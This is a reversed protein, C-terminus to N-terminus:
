KRAIIIIRRALSTPCLYGILRFLLAWKSFPGTMRPDGKKVGVITFNYYELLQKMANITASHVHGQAPKGSYFITGVYIEKSIDVDSPQYGLLLSIRQIYNALNPLTILLHGEKKLIRYSETILNDYFCLHEIVGNSIVLDFYDSPFPLKGTGIDTRITRLGRSEAVKLRESDIDVGYVETASFFNAVLKTMGGFGCGLDLVRNIQSKGILQLAKLYDKVMHATASVAFDDETLVKSADAVISQKKM